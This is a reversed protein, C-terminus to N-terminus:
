HPTAGPQQTPEGPGGTATRTGAQPQQGPLNLKGQTETQVHVSDTKRGAEVTGQVRIRHPRSQEQKPLTLNLVGHEYTARVNDPDVPMPLTITRSYSGYRRERLLTRRGQGQQGQQSQQAQGAQPSESSTEGHITLTDGVVQVQIDDPKVGPMSAHVVYENETEHVDLALPSGGTGGWQMGGPRVFTDQILRDMAERLSLMGGFPDWREM